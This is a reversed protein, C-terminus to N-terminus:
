KFPRFPDVGFVNLLLVAGSVLVVVVLWVRPRIKPKPPIWYVGSMWAFVSIAQAFPKPIWFGLVRAILYMPVLGAAILGLLQKNTPLERTM